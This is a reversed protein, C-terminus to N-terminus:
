LTAEALAQEEAAGAQEDLCRPCADPEYTEAGCACRYLKDEFASPADFDDSM